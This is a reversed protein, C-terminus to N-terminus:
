IIQCYLSTELYGFNTDGSNLHLIHFFHCSDTISFLQFRLCFCSFVIFRMLEIHCVVGTLCGITKSSNDDTVTRKGEEWLSPCRFDGCHQGIAEAGTIWETAGQLSREAGVRVSSASMNRGSVMRLQMISM